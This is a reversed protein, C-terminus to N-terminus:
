GRDAIPYALEIDLGRLKENNILRYVKSSILMIKEPRLLGRRTGIFQRSCVIDLNGISTSKAYIESLLNLGILDGLPCRCEGKIDYDFPNIGVRTPPVIEAGVSIVKMQFWDESKFDRNKVYYIPNFEVDHIKNRNLLEVVRRSVVIEGSITRSIDKNKPIRKFDLFLDSVQKAGSGCKHCASTEDYITGCEEGAPEFTSTIKLHFCSAMNLESKSYKRLIDWGYFFSRGYEQEVQKQIEWIKSLRPDDGSIKILRIMGSGLKKGEDSRFLREAFDEVIRFEYIETM